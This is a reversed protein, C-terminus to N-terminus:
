GPLAHPTPHPARTLVTLFTEAGGPAAAAGRHAAQIVCLAESM